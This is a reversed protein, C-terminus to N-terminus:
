WWHKQVEACWIASCRSIPSSISRPVLWLDAKKVAYSMTSICEHSSALPFVHIQYLNVPSYSRYYRNLNLAQLM